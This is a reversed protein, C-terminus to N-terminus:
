ATALDSDKVLFRRQVMPTDSQMTYQNLALPKKILIRHSETVLHGDLLNITMQMYGQSIAVLCTSLLMVMVHPGPHRVFGLPDVGRCWELTSSSHM